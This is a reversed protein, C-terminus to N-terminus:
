TSKWGPNSSFLLPVTYKNQDYNVELMAEYWTDPKLVPLLESTVTLYKTYNEHIYTHAPISTVRANWDIPVWAAMGPSTEMWINWSSRGSATAAAAKAAVYQIKAVSTTTKIRSRTYHVGFEPGVQMTDYSHQPIRMNVVYTMVNGNPITDIKREAAVHNSFHTREPNACVLLGRKGSQAASKAFKISGLNKSYCPNRGELSEVAAWGDEDSNGSLFDEVLIPNSWYQRHLINSLVTALSSVFVVM